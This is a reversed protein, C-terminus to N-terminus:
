SASTAALPGPPVLAAARDLVNPNVGVHVTGVIEGALWDTLAVAPDPLLVTVATAPHAHVATLLAEHIVTVDPDDPDPVPETANPNVALEAEVLRTPV